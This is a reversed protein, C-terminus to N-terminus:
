GVLTHRHRGPSAAPAITQCRDPDTCREPDLNRARRTLRELESRAAELMAIRRSVDHLRQELLARVHECSPVGQAKLDLIHRIEDLTLGAAQADKIFGLRDVDRPEYTRYGNREREPRRILGIGEYYRITKTSIGARNALEGIRM